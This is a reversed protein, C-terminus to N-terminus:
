AGVEGRRGDLYVLVRDCTRKGKKRIFHFVTKVARSRNTSKLTCTTQTPYSVCSAGPYAARVARVSSGVGVGKASRGRGSYILASVRRDAGFVVSLDDYVWTGGRGPVMCCRPDLVRCDNATASNTARASKIL